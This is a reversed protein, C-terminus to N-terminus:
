QNAGYVGLLGARAGGSRILAEMEPTLSLLGNTMYNRLASTGTAAQLATPIGLATVTTVPDAIAGGVGLGTYVARPVTGSQPPPRLVSSLRAIDVLEGTLKGEKMADKYRTEMASKLRGPLVRGDEVIKGTELMRLNAWQKRAADYAQSDKGMAQRAARDLANEVRELAKAKGAQGNNYASRIAQDLVTKNQQFWAGDVPGTKAVAQIEALLGDVSEDRLSKLVKSGQVASLESAVQPTNLNIQLPELIRQFEGSIRNRASALVNETVEDAQQGLARTAAQAIAEDNRAARRSAIGSAFPVDAAASEAWKLAKNGSAEGATLNVKLREAAELAKRQAESIETTPKVARTFVNALGYGAAGGAAGMAGRGLREETTGYEVLGPLSASLAAGSVGAGMMPAALLPAAEGLMTAGPRVQQLREYIRTNEAEEEGMRGLEQRAADSGFASAVNLGMQKVGKGLRDIQRGAGILAAQGFGPDEVEPTAPEQPQQLPAQRASKIARALQTAAAVDGANHANVLATELQQLTAM